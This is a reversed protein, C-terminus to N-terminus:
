LYKQTIIRYTKGYTKNKAIEGLIQKSLKAYNEQNLNLVKSM